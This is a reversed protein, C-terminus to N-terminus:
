LTQSNPPFTRMHLLTVFMDAELLEGSVSTLVSQLTDRITDISISSRQETHQLPHDDPKRYIRNTTQQNPSQYVLTITGHEGPQSTHVQSHVQSYTQGTTLHQTQRRRLKVGFEVPLIRTIFDDRTLDMEYRDVIMDNTDNVTDGTGIPDLVVNILSGKLICSTFDWGHDHPTESPPPDHWIHLRLKSGDPFDLLTMKTFRFPHVFARKAITQIAM